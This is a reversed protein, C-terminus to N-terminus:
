CGPMLWKDSDRIAPASLLVLLNYNHNRNIASDFLLDMCNNDALNMNVFLNLNVALHLNMFFHLNVTLHMNM